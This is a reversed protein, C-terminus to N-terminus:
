KMEKWFKLAAIKDEPLGWERLCNEIERWFGEDTPALVAFFEKMPYLARYAWGDSTPILDIRGEGDGTKSRLIVHREERGPKLTAEALWKDVLSWFAETDDFQFYYSSKPGDVCQM